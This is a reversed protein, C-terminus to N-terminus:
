PAVPSLGLHPHEILMERMKLAAPSLERNKRHIFYIPRTMMKPSIRVAVTPLLSFHPLSTEPSLCVGLGAAVLGALTALNNVDFGTDEIGAEQFVQRAPRLNKGARVLMNGTGQLHLFKVRQLMRPTIMSAAALPHDPPCVVYLAEDFLLEAEVEHPTGPQSNLAFDVVGQRVLELCRVSSVDHLQIQVRPHFARYLGLVKPLWMVALSPVVALAVYGTQLTAVDHLDTLVQELESTVRRATEALRRGEATLTVSRSDRNFLLVGVRDELKSIMQSLASQTMHCLEAAVTFQGTEALVLFSKLVHDSIHM